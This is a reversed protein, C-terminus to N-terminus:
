VAAQREGDAALRAEESAARTTEAAARLEEQRQRIVEAAERHRDRVERTEEARRFEETENRADKEFIVQPEADPREVKSDEGRDGLKATAHQSQRDPPTRENAM